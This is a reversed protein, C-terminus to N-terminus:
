AAWAEAEKIEAETPIDERALIAKGAKWRSVMRGFAANGVQQQLGLLRDHTSQPVDPAVDPVRAAQEERKPEDAQHEPRV